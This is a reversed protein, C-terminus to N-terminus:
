CFIILFLLIMSADGLEDYIRFYSVFSSPSLQRRCKTMASVATPVPTTTFAAAGAMLSAIVALKM